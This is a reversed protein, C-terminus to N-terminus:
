GIMGDFLRAFLRGVLGPVMRWRLGLTGLLDSYPTKRM